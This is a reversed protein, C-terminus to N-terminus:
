VPSLYKGRPYQNQYPPTYQPTYPVVDIVVSNSVQGGIIFLVIHQGVTDAYFNIQSNGPFFYFANKSLIGNPDIEYLYGNGGIHLQWYLCAPVKHFKPMSHGARPVRYGSHTVGPIHRIPRISPTLYQRCKIASTFQQPYIM